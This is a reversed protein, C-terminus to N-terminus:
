KGEADERREVEADTETPDNKYEGMEYRSKALEKSQDDEGEAARPGFGSKKRLDVHEETHFPFGGKTYKMSYGM